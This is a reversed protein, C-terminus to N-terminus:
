WPNDAVRPYRRLEKNDIADVLRLRHGPTAWQDFTRWAEDLNRFEYGEEGDNDYVILTVKCNGTPNNPM